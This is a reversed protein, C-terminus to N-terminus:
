ALSCVARYRHPYCCFESHARSTGPGPTRRDAPHCRRSGHELHTSPQERPKLCLCPGTKSCLAPAYGPAPFRNGLPLAADELIWLIRNSCDRVKVEGLWVMLRPPVMGVHVWQTPLEPDSRRQVGDGGAWPRGGASDRPVGVVQREVSGQVM